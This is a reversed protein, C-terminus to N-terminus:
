FFWGNNDCSDDNSKLKKILWVGVVVAVFILGIISLDM